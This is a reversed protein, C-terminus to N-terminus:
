DWGGTYGTGTGSTTNSCTVTASASGTAGTQLYAPDVTATIESSGGTVVGTAVTSLGTNPSVTVYVTSGSTWSVEPMTLSSVAGYNTTTLSATLTVTGGPLITASAPDVSIGTVENINILYEAFDSSEETTASGALSATVRLVAVGSKKLTVNGQPTLEAFESSTPAVVWSLTVVNTLDSGDSGKVTVSPTTTTGAALWLTTSTASLEVSAISIKDVCTLTATCSVDTSAYPSSVKATIKVETNTVADDAASATSAAKIDSGAQSATSPSTVTVKPYDSEWAVTPWTAITGNVDSGGNVILTATLDLSGDKVINATSPAVTVGTVNNVYVMFDATKTSPATTASEALTATVTLKASGVGQLTVVGANTVTAVDTNDSAWTLTVGSTLAQGNTGMVTVTPTSAGYALWVTTSEAGLDVSSIAIKDVCTLTSKDSLTSAAFPTEVKVTIETVDGATVGSATTANAKAVITEGEKYPNGITPLTVKEEDYSWILALDNGITGYIGNGGNIELTTTLDLSGGIVIDSTAPAISIGTVENVYVDYSASKSLGQHTVTATIKAAGYEGSLSVTGDAAVASVPANDANTFSWNVTYGSMPNGEPDLVTVDPSSLSTQTKWAQVSSIPNGEKSFVVSGIGSANPPLNAQGSEADTWTKVVADLKVSTLGLHLSVVYRKGAELVMPDGNAQTIPKTIVNEVSVGRTVGDSLYGLLKPDATEIDYVITVSLPVGSTPVVMIPNTATNGAFLNVAEHKVGDLVAPDYPQSQIIAPNLGAPTENPDAATAMGEIGDTRGDYVTVPDRKVRGTGSIDFWAPGSTTNSNLNLSGRLAFGNFTVSRVYIRTGDNALEEGAHSEVDIDTDVQVNLQTLAHNFEFTMRDGTKPKVVNIFPYGKAVNNNNGDVSSTFNDAAVGWCLDVGSGPVLNAEYMVLPDGTAINRSMGIIGSTADGTVLGTSPTVAAYPAYAFFTLRDAAESSAEAGYENPWYKVPEYTWVSTTGFYKYEVKQNYMFDPKSTENYLAGNGYYSFVGFGGGDGKLRDTDLEGTLGAKTAVSRNMYFGFNVAVSDTKKSEKPQDVSDINISCSALLATVVLYFWIFRRM